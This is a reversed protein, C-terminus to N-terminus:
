PVAHWAKPHGMGNVVEVLGLLFACAKDYDQALLAAM